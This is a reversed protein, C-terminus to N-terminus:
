ASSRSGPSREAVRAYSHETERDTGSMGQWAATQPHSHMLALGLGQSAAQSASRVVYSGSFSANGHVTREGELPLVLETLVASTRRNGTSPAYTALCVDEQEDGRLLHRRARSDLDSTMAVSVRTM